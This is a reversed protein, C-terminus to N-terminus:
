SQHYHGSAGALRPGLQWAPLASPRWRAGRAKRVMRFPRARPITLIIIARGSLALALFPNGRARVLRRFRMM